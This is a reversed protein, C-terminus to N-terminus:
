LNSDQERRFYKKKNKSIKEFNYIIKTYDFLGVMMFSFYVYM